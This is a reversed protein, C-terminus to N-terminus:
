PRDKRPRPLSLRALLAFAPAADRALMVPPGGTGRADELTRFVWRELTRDKGDWVLQVGLAGAARMAAVRAPLHRAARPTVHVIALVGAARAADRVVRRTPVPAAELPHAGLADAVARAIRAPAKVEIAADLAATGRGVVTRGGAAGVRVIM